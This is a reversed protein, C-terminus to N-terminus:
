STALSSFMVKYAGTPTLLSLCYTLGAELMKASAQSCLGRERSKCRPALSNALKQDNQKHHRDLLYDIGVVRANMASLKDVLQALYSRDMPNPASIGAKQISEDDIQVLLVPPHKTTPVQHTLQRYIAQVLVRQELLFGQVPLQWSVFALTALAIAERRTPLWRKIQQKIGFPQIRFLPADPHRFL